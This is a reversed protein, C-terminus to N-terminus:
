ITMLVRLTMGGGTTSIIAVRKKVDNQEVEVLYAPFTLLDENINTDQETEQLCCVAINSELIYHKVLEKKSALGLCLNWTAIKINPTM